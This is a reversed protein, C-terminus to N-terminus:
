PDEVEADTKLTTVSINRQSHGGCDFINVVKWGCAVTEGGPHWHCGAVTSNYAQIETVYLRSVASKRACCMYVSCM